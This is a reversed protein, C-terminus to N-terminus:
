RSCDATKEVVLRDCRLCSLLRVGRCFGCVTRSRGTVRPPGTGAPVDEVFSVM